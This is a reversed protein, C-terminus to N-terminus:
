KMGRMGTAAQSNKLPAADNEGRRARAAAASDTTKDRAALAPTIRADQDGAVGRLTGGRCAADHSRSCARGPATSAASYSARQCRSM